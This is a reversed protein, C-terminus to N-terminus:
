LARLETMDALILKSQKYITRTAPAAVVFGGREYRAVYLAAHFSDVDNQIAITVKSVVTDFEDAEIVGAATQVALFIGELTEEGIEPDVTEPTYWHGIVTQNQIRTLLDADTILPEAALVADRWAAAAAKQEDTWSEITSM